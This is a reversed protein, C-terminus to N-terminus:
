SEVSEVCLSSFLGACSIFTIKRVSSTQQNQVNIIVSLLHVGSTYSCSCVSYSAISVGIFIDEYVCM